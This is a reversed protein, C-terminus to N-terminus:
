MINDQAQNTKDAFIKGSTANWDLAIEDEPKGNRNKTPNIYYQNSDKSTKISYVIFADRGYQDSDALNETRAYGDDNDKTQRNAQCIAQVHINKEKALFKIWTSIEIHKATDVLNNFTLINAYDILVYDPVFDLKQKVEDIFNGIKDAHHIDDVILLREGYKKVYEKSDTFFKDKQTTYTTNDDAIFSKKIKWAEIDYESALLRQLFAKKKLELSFVIVKSDENHKLIANVFNVGLVTKGKGTRGTIITNEGLVLPCKEDIDKYGTYLIKDAKLLEGISNKDVVYRPYLSSINQNNNKM